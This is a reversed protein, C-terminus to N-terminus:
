FMGDKELEKIQQDKLNIKNKLALDLIHNVHNQLCYDKRCYDNIYETVYIKKLAISTISDYIINGMIHEKKNCVWSCPFLDGTPRIIHFVRSYYCRKFNFIPQINGGLFATINTNQSLFNIIHPNKKLYTQIQDAIQNIESSSLYDDHDMDIRHGYHRLPRYHFQLKDVLANSNSFIENHIKLFFALYEEYNHKSYLFSVGVKGIDNDLYRHLNYIVKNFLNKGRMQAYLTPSASDISIRIWDLNDHWCGPVFCTGNTIMGLRLDPLIAKVSSILDGITSNEHKYLTPEGGGVFILTKPNIKTLSELSSIPFQNKSNLAIHKDQYTCGVCNLNCNDTPHLEAHQIKSYCTLAEILDSLTGFKSIRLLYKITEEESKLGYYFDHFYNFASKAYKVERIRLSKIVNEQKNLLEISVISKFLNRNLAIGSFTNVPAISKLPNINIDIQNDFRYPNYISYNLKDIM